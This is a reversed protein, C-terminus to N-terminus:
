CTEELINSVHRSKHSEKNNSCFTQSNDTMNQEQFFIEKKNNSTRTKKQIQKYVQKNRAKFPM